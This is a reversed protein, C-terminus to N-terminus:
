KKRRAAKSTKDKSKGKAKRKPAEARAEESGVKRVGMHLGLPFVEENVFVPDGGVFTAAVRGTMEEGLWPCNASRSQLHRKELRWKAGCQLLVFDAPRGKQLTGWDARLVSAPASTLKEILFDITWKGSAVFRTHLLAFASPMGIVGFPAADFVSEKASGSHPAHDTAICDITGDELGRILALRDEESCLPPKMKAMTNYHLVAEETMTLHHPTVEATVRVGNRKGERIAEVSERTSVHCIHIHGGTHAALAVNRAVMTSEAVRPIGKLGLRISVAGENMVGEGSLNTDECHEMIPVGLMRTYELARRMIDANMIPKFSDSFAVAGTALLKGLDAMQEGQQGRTVTAVPKVRVIGSAAARSLIYQVGTESDCPPNTNAMALITTYGGAAAARTGSEITEATESGPERLHTHLDVFGPALVLSEGNIERAVGEGSPCIGRGIEAIRGGEIAVDYRGSIGQTVDIVHANRIICTAM